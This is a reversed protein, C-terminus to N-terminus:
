FENWQPAEVLCDPPTVGYQECLLEAAQIALKQASVLDPAQPRVSASKKGTQHELFVDILWAKPAHSEPPAAGTNYAVTITVPPCTLHFKPV